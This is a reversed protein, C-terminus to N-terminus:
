TLMSNNHLVLELKPNAAIDPTKHSVFETQERRQSAPEWVCHSIPIQWRNFSAPRGIAPLWPSTWDLSPTRARAQWQLHQGVSAEHIKVSNTVRPYSLISAICNRLRKSGISAGHLKM